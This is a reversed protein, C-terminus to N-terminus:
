WEGRAGEVRKKEPTGPNVKNLQTAKTSIMETKAKEPTQLENDRPLILSSSTLLNWYSRCLFAFILLNPTLPNKKKNM